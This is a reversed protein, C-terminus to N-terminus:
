TPEASEANTGYGAVFERRFAAFTGAEIEQRMCAM